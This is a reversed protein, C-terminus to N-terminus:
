FDDLDDSNDEQMLAEPKIDLEDLIKLILEKTMSTDQSFACQFTEHMFKGLEYNIRDYEQTIEDDAFNPNNMARVQDKWNPYFKGGNNHLKNKATIMRSLTSPKIDLIIAQEPRSHRRLTPNDEFIMKWASNHLQNQDKPINPKTDQQHSYLTADAVNGTFVQAPISKKRASGKSQEKNFQVYAQYRHFGAVITYMENGDIKIVVIPDLHAKRPDSKGHLETLLKLKDKLKNINDDSNSIARHQQRAHLTEIYRTQFQEDDHDIQGLPVSVVASLEKKNENM